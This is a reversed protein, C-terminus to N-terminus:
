NYSIGAQKISTGGAGGLCANHSGSGGTVGSEVCRIGYTDADNEPAFVQLANGRSTGSYGWGALVMINDWHNKWSELDKGPETSLTKGDYVVPYEPSKILNDTRVGTEEDLPVTENIGTDVPMLTAGATLAFCPCIGLVIIVSLFISLIRKKM